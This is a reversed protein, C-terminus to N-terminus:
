LGAARNAQNVRAAYCDIDLEPVTRTTYEHLARRLSESLLEAERSEGKDAETRLNVDDSDSMYSAYINRPLV